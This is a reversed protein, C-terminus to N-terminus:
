CPVLTSYPPLWTYRYCLKSGSGNSSGGKGPKARRKKQLFLRGQDRARLGNGSTATLRLKTSTRARRSLTVRLQVKRRAGAGLPAVRRSMRVKMGRARSVALRVRGTPADGPNRLIARVKRTRGPRMKSPLKGLRLELEPLARLNFPGAVDYVVASNGPENLQAIVCNPRKGALSRATAEYEEAAADYLKVASGAVPSAGSSRLLVWDAGRLDTQTGFGIAPYGNCGSATRRGAFLTLNAPADGNPTGNLKVGGRLHGTRRNYSLGVKVIDRGPDPDAADGAPDQGLAVFNASASPAAALGVALAFLVTLATRAFPLM